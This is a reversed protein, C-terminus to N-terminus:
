SPKAVKKGPEVTVTIDGGLGEEGEDYDSKPTQSVSSHKPSSGSASKEAPTGSRSRKVDGSTSEEDDKADQVMTDERSNDGEELKMEGLAADVTEAKIDRTDDAM